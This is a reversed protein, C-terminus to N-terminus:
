CGCQHDEVALTANKEEIVGVQEDVTERARHRRGHIQPESREALSRARAREFEASVDDREKVSINHKGMTCGTSVQLGDIVCSDPPSWHLRAICKIGFWGRADLTKLAIIGMRLGAAM